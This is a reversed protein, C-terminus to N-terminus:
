EPFIVPPETSQRAALDDFRVVLGTGPPSFAGRVSIYVKDQDDILLATPFPLKEILVTRVGWGDAQSELRLLRGTKGRYPDSSEGDGIFELVYMRGSSDFALDIPTTLGDVVVEFAGDAFLRLVSGTGTAHPLQSFSAVYVLGDPGRDIGTLVEHGPLEAFLTIEGDLGAALVHGTAGDTVLFRERGQDPTMAFPNSFIDTEDFFDAPATRTAYALFDSVIDPAASSDTIRLLTRALDGEGEGTLLYLEGKMEAVDAPGTTVGTVNYFVYPLQEVVREAEGEADM